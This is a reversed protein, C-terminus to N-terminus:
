LYRQRDELQTRLSLLGLRIDVWRNSQVPGMALLETLRTTLLSINDQNLSNLKYDKDNHFGSTGHFSADIERSGFLIVYEPENTIGLDDLKTWVQSLGGILQTFIEMFKYVPHTPNNVVTKDFKLDFKKFVWDVTRDWKLTM